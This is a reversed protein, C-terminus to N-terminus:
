ELTVSLEYGISTDFRDPVHTVRLYYTGAPLDRALSVTEDIAPCVGGDPVSGTVRVSSGGTGLELLALEVGELATPCEAAGEGTLSARVAGGEAVDFAFVDVECSTDVSGRVRMSEGAGLVLFNAGYLDDNVEIERPQSGSLESRCDGDCGDGDEANGDDCNESHDRRGDGCVTRFASVRGQFGDSDPSDFAVVFRDDARPIFTFHEDSGADCVDLGDGESCAREDCDRLVYIAPNAAERGEFPDVDVHFHWHEDRLADIRLFLDPGTQARGTCRTVESSTDARGRTDVDFDFSQAGQPFYLLPAEDGCVEALDGRLGPGADANAGGDEAALYLNEDFLGFCGGGLVAALVAVLAGARSPRAVSRSEPRLDHM